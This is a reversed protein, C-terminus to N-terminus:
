DRYIFNYKVAQVTSSSSQKTMSTIRNQSDLTVINQFNIVSHFVKNRNADFTFVSDTYHSATNEFFTRLTSKPTLAALTYQDVMTKYPSFWAPDLANFIAALARSNGDYHFDMKKQAQPIYDYWGSTGNSIIDAYFKDFIYQSCSGEKTLNFTNFYAKGELGPVISNFYTGPLDFDGKITLVSDEFYELYYEKMDSQTSSVPILTRTYVDLGPTPVVDLHRIQFLRENIPYNGDMDEFARISIERPAIEGLAQQWNLDMSSLSVPIYGQNTLHLAYHRSFIKPTRTLDPGGFYYTNHIKILPLPAMTQDTSEVTYTHTAEDHTLTYTFATKWQQGDAYSLVISDPVAAPLEPSVPNDSTTKTCSAAAVCICIFLKSITKPIM